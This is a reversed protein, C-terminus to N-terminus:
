PLLVFAQIVTWTSVIFSNETYLIIIKKLKYTHWFVNCTPCLNNKGGPHIAAVIKSM